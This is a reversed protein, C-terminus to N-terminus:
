LEAARSCSPLQTGIPYRIVVLAKSMMGTLAVIVPSVFELLGHQLVVLM